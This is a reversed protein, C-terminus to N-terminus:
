STTAAPRRSLKQLIAHGECASATTFDFNISTTCTCSRMITESDHSNDEIGVAASVCGAAGIQQSVDKAPLYSPRTNLHPQNNRDYHSVKFALIDERSCQGTKTTKDSIISDSPRINRLLQQFEQYLIHLRDIGRKLRRQGWM